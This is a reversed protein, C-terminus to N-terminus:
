NRRQSLREALRLPGDLSCYCLQALQCPDVNMVDLTTASGVFKQEQRADSIGVKRSRRLHCAILHEGAEPSLPSRSLRCFHREGRCEGIYIFWIKVLARTRACIIPWSWWMQACIHRDAAIGLIIPIIPQGSVLKRRQAIQVAPRVLTEPATPVHGEECWWAFGALDSVANGHLVDM